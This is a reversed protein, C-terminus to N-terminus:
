WSNVWKWKGMVWGRKLDEEVIQSHWFHLGTSSRIWPDYIQHHSIALASCISFQLTPLKTIWWTTVRTFVELQWCRYFCYKEKNAFWSLHYFLHTYLRLVTQVSTEEQEKCIYIYIKVKSEFWLLRPQVFVGENTLIEQFSHSLNCQEIFPLYM